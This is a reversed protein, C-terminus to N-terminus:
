RPIQRADARRLRERAENESLATIPRGVTDQHKADYARTWVGAAWARELEDASFERGRAHCYAALFRETDDVTAPEDVSVTSYLAAAFGALVAESDATMSDWDHVVLLADGNWRLNGALWDCHGIVAEPESARLRDRARRGADNIWEAGAAEDLKVGPDEAPPWLGDEPHNWAAWSPAPDLAPVEAPRPALRILWAFAEAFARAARDASPLMAGGPVYAEATAVGDGFRAAGTLPRPCPYGAQFMRRQVEVCAAIRPSDPRVKVVVERDDALRLGVVASLFGSRFIEEAPPSALHEMCWRSLCAPDVAPAGASM